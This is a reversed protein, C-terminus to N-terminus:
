AEGKKKIPCEMMRQVSSRSSSVSLINREGLFGTKPFTFDRTLFSKLSSSLMQKSISRGDRRDGQIKVMSQMFNKNRTDNVKWMPDNEKQTFCMRQLLIKEQHM